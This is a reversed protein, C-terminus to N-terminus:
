GAGQMGCAKSPDVLRGDGRAVVVHRLTPNIVLVRASADRDGEVLYQSLLYAALDECDGTRRLATELPTQWHEQNPKERVYRLATVPPFKGRNAPDRREAAGILALGNVAAELQPITSVSITLRVAM